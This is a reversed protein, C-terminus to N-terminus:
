HEDFISGQQARLIMEAALRAAWGVFNPCNQEGGAERWEKYDPPFALNFSRNAVKEQLEKCVCTGFETEFAKWLIRGARISDTLGSQGDTVNKRGIVLGIALLAGTVAGCVDGKDTVGGSLTSSARATANSNLDLCENIAQLVCQACGGYKAEYERAIEEIDDLLKERDEVM